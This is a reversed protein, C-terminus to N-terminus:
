VLIFEKTVKFKLSKEGTHIWEHVIFISSFTFSVDSYQFKHSKEKINEAHM